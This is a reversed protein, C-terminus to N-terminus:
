GRFEPRVTITLLPAQSPAGRMADFVSITMRDVLSDAYCEHQTMTRWIETKLIRFLRDTGHGIWVLRFDTTKTDYEFSWAEEGCAPERRLTLDIAADGELKTRTEPAPEDATAILPCVILMFSLAAHKPVM